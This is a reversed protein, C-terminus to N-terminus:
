YGATRRRHYGTRRDTIGDRGTFATRDTHLRFTVRADEGPALAVRAFGALWRVPRVVSAVPDSLYLQAVETGAVPGTNRVTCSIDVVGDTSVHDASLEFTAMPPADSSRGSAAVNVM